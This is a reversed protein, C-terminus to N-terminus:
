SLKEREDFTTAIMATLAAALAEFAEGIATNEFKQAQSIAITRVRVNEALDIHAYLPGFPTSVKQTLCLRRTM